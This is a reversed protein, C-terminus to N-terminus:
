SGGRTKALQAKCDNMWTSLLRQESPSEDVMYESLHAQAADLAQQETLDSAKHAIVTLNYTAKYREQVTRDPTFGFSKLLAHLSAKTYGDYHVAWHAEQSGFIHRLGVQKAKHGTFASLVAKATRGLDPVEIHVIGGPQLWANWSALLASAQVRTFHEFVHHLRVEAISGQPYSLALLDHFEDAVSDEQM